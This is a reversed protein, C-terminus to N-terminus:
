KYFTFKKLPADDDSIKQLENALQIGSNFRYIGGYFLVPATRTFAELKQREGPEIRINKRERDLQVRVSSVVPTIKEVNPGFYSELHLTIVGDPKVDLDTKVFRYTGPVGPIPQVTKSWELPLVMLEVMSDNTLRYLGANIRYDGEHEILSSIGFLYETADGPFRFFFVKEKIINRGFVIFRSNQETSGYLEGFTRRYKPIMRDKDKELLTIRVHTGAKHIFDTLILQDATLRPRVSPVGKHLVSKYFASELLETNVKEKFLGRFYEDSYFFHRYAEPVGAHSIKLKMLFREIEPYRDPYRVTMFAAEERRRSDVVRYEIMVGHFVALLFVVPLIINLPHLPANKKAAM